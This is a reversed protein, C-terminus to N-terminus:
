KEIPNFVEQRAIVLDLLAQLGQRAAHRQEQTLTTDAAFEDEDLLLIDGEPNIWLDLLLDVQQIYNDFIIVPEAINCYWGKRIGETNAIDFINFWRDTYYYEIFQDGPEFCTYGVDKQPLTWIARIIIGHSFREVIEGQYSFVPKGHPNQKVVTIM